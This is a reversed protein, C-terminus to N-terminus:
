PSVGTSVPPSSRARLGFYVAAHLPLALGIAPLTHQITLGIASAGAAIASLAVATPAAWRLRRRSRGFLLAIILAFAIPSFHLVNVNWAVVWHQTFGIVATFFLAGLAAFTEWLAALAIFGPRWVRALAIMAAALAVGIATTAIAPSRASTPEFNGPSTTTNWVRRASVLPVRGGADGTVTLADLQRSFEMPLFATEWDTLRRDARPGAAFDMLTSLVENEAGVPVLRRMQWRYGHPTTAQMQPRLQGGVADDIADRVRTACNDVFYDYRYFRNADTDQADIAALLRGSQAPSLRLTQETVTRDERRAYIDILPLAQKGEMWYRTDGFIFRQIFAPDDFSFNGWDFWYDIGRSPIQVRIANHGFREFVMPGPGFTLISVIPEDPPTQAVAGPPVALALLAAFCAFLRRVM